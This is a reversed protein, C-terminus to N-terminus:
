RVDVDNHQAITPAGVQTANITVEGTSTPQITNVSKVPSLATTFEGFTITRTDSNGDVNVIIVDNNGLSPVSSLQSIRVTGSM